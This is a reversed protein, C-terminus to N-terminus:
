RLVINNESFSSHLRSNTSLHCCRDSIAALAIKLAVRLPQSCHGFKRKEGDLRLNLFGSDVLLSSKRCHNAKLQFILVTCCHTSRIAGSIAGVKKYSSYDAMYKGLLSIIPHLFRFFTDDCYIIERM